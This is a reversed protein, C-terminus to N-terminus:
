ELQRSVWGFRIYYPRESKMMYTLAFRMNGQSSENFLNTPNTTMQLIMLERVNLHEM